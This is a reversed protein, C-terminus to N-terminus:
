KSTPYIRSSICKKWYCYSRRYSKKKLIRCCYYNWIGSKRKQDATLVKHRGLLQSRGITELVTRIEPQFIIILALPGWSIVYELLLGITYLNLWDSLLKIAIIIIIGKFILVLKVNNKLNKLLYYFMLWVLSIDIIKTIIEWISTFTM